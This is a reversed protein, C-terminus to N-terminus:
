TKKETYNRLTERREGASMKEHQHGRALMFIRM